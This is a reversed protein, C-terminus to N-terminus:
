SLARERLVGDRTLEAVLHLKDIQACFAVDDRLEPIAALRSGNRSSLLAQTLNAKAARYLDRAMWTSDAPEAVAIQRSLLECLAGAGLADEYATQERTGSCVVLLRPPRQRQLFEATATLNLFSCALVAQAAQCAHLARTGNTTTMVVTRGRVREGTFERPSNGLDFDISGTLAARIRVGEREGALLVRPDQSKIALAPPIGAVPIIGAAVNALATVMTSTARLVDFVVCYTEELQRRSLAEFDAPTFLVELSKM